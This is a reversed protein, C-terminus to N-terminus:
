KGVDSLNGDKRNTQVHVRILADLATTQVLHKWGFKELVLQEMEEVIWSQWLLLPRSLSFSSTERQCLKSLNQLTRRCFGVEVIV